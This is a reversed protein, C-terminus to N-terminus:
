ETHEYAVRMVEELSTVGELILRRGNERITVMGHERACQLLQESTAMNVILRRMTDNVRMIEFLATRGFYGSYNCQTCGDAEYIEIQKEEEIQLQQKEEITASRKKKCHPCLTRVLRQAIVGIMADAILYREIGMDALRNLTGVANNTHLTSVVLHGTISAQVAINATEKDRIEGIMIIDPDQRLISRLASAFTIGAKINVQIQNIGEMQSEVPDEVTVINVSDDNLESLATYLTTSKGSGTPGTVLLIGYPNRLMQEFQKLEEKSFGLEEKRKSMSIKSSIRLVIKEGYVTPISSIRLDYEKRDVTMSMRGDQPKRKESIDMGGLIKIRTSIAPLLENDYIMKESLVGDIRYRVRVHFELAEIHIDSARQRIAQEILTRVLKVIPADSVDVGEEEEDARKLAEREQKFRRAQDMTENAGYWRDIATIIDQTSAIYPRVQKDTVIAIDDIADLDMPDAMAVYLINPNKADFAFPFVLYKKLLESNVLDRIKKPISMSAVEVVELGLQMKLAQIIADETIFGEEILVEGIKKGSGKQKRLAQEVQANTLLNQKVLLDGLRMRGRRMPMVVGQEKKMM